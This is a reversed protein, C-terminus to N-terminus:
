AVNDNGRAAGDLAPIPLIAPCINKFIRAELPARARLSVERGAGGGGVPDPLEGQGCIWRRM